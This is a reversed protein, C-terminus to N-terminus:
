LREKCVLSRWNCGAARDSATTRRFPGSAESASMAVSRRSGRKQITEAQRYDM